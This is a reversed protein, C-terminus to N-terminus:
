SPASDSTRWSAYEAMIDKGRWQNAIAELHVQIQKQRTNRAQWYRELDIVEDRDLLPPPDEVHLFVVEASCCSALNAVHPLIAESRNSGDLPVLITNYM